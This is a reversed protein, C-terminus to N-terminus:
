SAANPFAGLREACVLSMRCREWGFGQRRRNRLTDIYDTKQSEFRLQKQRSLGAGRPLLRPAVPKM